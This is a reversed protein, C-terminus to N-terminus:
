LVDFSIKNQRIFVVPLLNQFSNLIQATASQLALSQAERLISYTKRLFSGRESEPLIENNYFDIIFTLAVM